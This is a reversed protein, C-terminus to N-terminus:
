FYNLVHSLKGLVANWLIKPKHTYKLITNILGYNLINTSFGTHTIKTYEIATRRTHTVVNGETIPSIDFDEM